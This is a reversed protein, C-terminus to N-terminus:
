KGVAGLAESLSCIRPIPMSIESESESSLMGEYLKARHSDELM